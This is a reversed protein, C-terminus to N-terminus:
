SGAWSATDAEDTRLQRWLAALEPGIRYNAVGGPLWTIGVPWGRLQLGSAPNRLRRTLAALQGRVQAVSIQAHTAVDPVTVPAAGAVSCLDLLSLTAANGQIALLRLSDLDWAPGDDIIAEDDGLRRGITFEEADPVPYLRSFSVIVEGSDLRYPQFRVLSIAVGQENLWVVSATVSPPFQSAILVIRPHKITEATLLMEAELRALVSEVDPAGEPSSARYMSYLEAVDRPRLRSVMAAYNIAQMHVTRPAEARKLEAVVLHGEPDVGLVDLRDAIPTGESTQWRDYETTVIEVGSGLIAPNATVWEQLHRREGFELDPLSARALSSAAADRVTLVIEDYM